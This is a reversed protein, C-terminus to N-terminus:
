DRLGAGCWRRLPVRDPQSRDQPRLESAWYEAPVEVLVSVIPQKGLGHDAPFDDDVRNLREILRGPLDNFHNPLGFADVGVDLGDGIRDRAAVDADHVDLVLQGAEVSVVM